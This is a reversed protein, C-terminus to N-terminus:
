PLAHPTAQFWDQPSRLHSRAAAMTANMTRKLKHLDDDFSTPSDGKLLLPTGFQYSIRAFPKAIKTKDWSKPLQWYRDPSVAIPLIYTESKRAIAIIGPKPEYPPGKPGDVGFVCAKGEEILESFIQSAQKGGRSSSGRVVQYGLKKCVFSLIDGDKSYSILNYYPCGAQGLTAMLTDEHWLSLCFGKGKPHSLVEQLNDVGHFEFRYTAKLCRLLALAIWRALM